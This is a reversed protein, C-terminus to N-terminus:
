NRRTYIKKKGFGNWINRKTYRNGETIRMSLNQNKFNGMNGGEGFATIIMNPFCENIYDLDYHFLCSKYNISCILNKEVVNDINKQYYTALLPVSLWQNIWILKTIRGDKNLTFCLSHTGIKSVEINQVQFVRRLMTILRPKYKQDNNVSINVSLMDSAKAYMGGQGTNKEFALIVNKKHTDFVNSVYESNQPFIQRFYDSFGYSITLSRNLTNGFFLHIYESINVHFRTNVDAVDFLESIVTFRRGGDDGIMRSYYNKIRRNNTDDPYLYDILIPVSKDCFDFAEKYELNDEAAAYINNYQSKILNINSLFEM